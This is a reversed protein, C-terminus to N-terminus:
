SPKPTSCPVSSATRVRCTSRHCNLGALQAPAPGATAKFTYRRPITPARSGAEARVGILLVVTVPGNIALMLANWLCVLVVVYVWGPGGDGIWQVLGAAIVLYIGAVLMAPVGWKLGSRRRTARIPINSPMYRQLFDRIGVGLSAAAGAFAAELEVKSLTRGFARAVYRTIMRDIKVGPVGALMLLYRWSAYGLGPEAMWARRVRELRAPDCACAVLDSATAIGVEPGSLRTAAGYRAEAKRRKTGPTIQRNKFLREAAATPGGVRDIAEVLDLLSDKTADAGSGARVAGYRSVANIVGSYRAALSYVSDVACLALSDPYGYNPLLPIGEPFDTRVYEVFEAVVAGHCM